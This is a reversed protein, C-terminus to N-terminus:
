TMEELESIPDGWDDHVFVKGKDIGPTRTKPKEVIPVLRVQPKGAKAVIIDEGDVAREVLKAFHTKAEHMNFTTSM